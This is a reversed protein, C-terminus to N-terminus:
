NLSYLLFLSAYKLFQNSVKWYDKWLMFKKVYRKWQIKVLNFHLVNNILLYLIVFVNIEKLVYEEIIVIMIVLNGENYVFNMQLRVIFLLTMTLLKNIKKKAFLFQDKSLFKYKMIIMAFLNIVGQHKKVIMNLKFVVLLLEQSKMFHLKLFIKIPIVCINLFSNKLFVIILFILKRVFLKALFIMAVNYKLKKVVFNDLKPLANKMSFIVVKKWVM